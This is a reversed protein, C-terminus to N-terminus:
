PIWLGCARSAGSVAITRRSSSGTSSASRQWSSTRSTTAACGRRRPSSRPSRRMGPGPRSSGSRGAAALYSAATAWGRSVSVANPGFVRPSTILRVFAYVVPWCFAVAGDGDGLQEGLWGRARAHEPRGLVHCLDPPEHRRANVHSRARRPARRRADRAVGLRGLRRAATAGPAGAASLASGARAQRSGRRLLRNIAM